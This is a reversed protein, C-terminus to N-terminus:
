RTQTALCPSVDIIGIGAERVVQRSAEDLQSTAMVNMPYISHCARLGAHLVLLGILVFCLMNANMLIKVLYFLRSRSLSSKVGEM